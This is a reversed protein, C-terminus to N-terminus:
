IKQAVGIVAGPFGNKNIYDRVGTVLAKYITELEKHRKDRSSLPQQKINKVGLNLECLYLGEEFCPAQYIVDGDEDMVFSAGDFVLEDQGGVLNVYVVPVNNETVRKKVIDSREKDKSIHFPSANLNFIVEAGATVAACVPGPFWIDECVTLGIKVGNIDVVCSEDGPHFYRKEDFVSYNPLCQKAYEGLM